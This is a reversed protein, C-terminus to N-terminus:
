LLIQPQCIQKDRMVEAYDPVDRVIQHHHIQTMHHLLTLFIGYKLTWKM